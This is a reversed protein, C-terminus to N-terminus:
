KQNNYKDIDITEGTTDDVMKKISAVDLSEFHQTYQYPNDLELARILLVWIRPTMDDMITLLEVFGWGHNTLHAIMCMLLVETTELKVVLEQIKPYQEEAEVQSILGLFVMKYLNDNDDITVMMRGKRCKAIKGVDSLGSGM